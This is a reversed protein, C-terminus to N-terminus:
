LKPKKLAENMVEQLGNAVVTEVDDLQDFLRKERLDFSRRPFEGASARQSGNHFCWGAAGGVIAGSLDRFFDNPKPEWDEYGRRFPEQYLVPIVMGLTQLQARYKRTMTETENFTGKSRSRHMTLFDVGAIRVYNEIKQIFDADDSSHSATILRKSDLEKARDRLKKLDEMSVFRSDGVNRENALDLYWNRYPRLGKVVTQVARLHDELALLRPPGHKSKERAFTIDVIMGRRDAEKILHVLRGFFPEQPAGDTNVALLNNDFAGWNGWVRIWNFGRRQM